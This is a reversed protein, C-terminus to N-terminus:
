YWHHFEFYASLSCTIIKCIKSLLPKIRKLTEIQNSNSLSVTKFCMMSECFNEVYTVVHTNVLIDNTVGIVSIIMQGTM